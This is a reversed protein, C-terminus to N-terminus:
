LLGQDAFSFSDPNGIIIHDAVDVEILQLAKVIIATIEKDAASPTPIGSPHNHALIVHVANLELCRRAIERPYISAQNVTGQFLKEFTILRFHNDM